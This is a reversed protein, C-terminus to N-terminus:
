HVNNLVTEQIRGLGRDFEPDAALANVSEDLAALQAGDPDAPLEADVTEVELTEEGAICWLLLVSM